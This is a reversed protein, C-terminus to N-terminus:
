RRAGGPRVRMGEVSRADDVFRESQEPGGVVGVLVVHGAYVGADVERAVGPTRRTSISFPRLTTLSARCSRHPRHRGVPKEHRGFDSM